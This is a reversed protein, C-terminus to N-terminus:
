RLPVKKTSAATSWKSHSKGRFVDIMAAANVVFETSLFALVVPPSYKACLWLVFKFVRFPYLPLLYILYQPSESTLKKAQHHGWVIRRRQEFYEPFTEPGHIFVRCESDYKVLWGKKKTMIAMYADDNVTGAPIEKVIGRRISFIETAHRALGADNLQAFVHGHLHWLLQVLKGVLSDTRNTPVPNGCVLGVNPTKLKSILRTFCRKSPMTDASVFLIINGKANSLIRNIASAKGLREKEVYLKVRHDSDSYKQVIEVTKDTCGSCVVLVESKASLEQECLINGLLKEVNREENYACIGVTVTCSLVL